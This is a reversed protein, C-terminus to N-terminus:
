GVTSSAVRELKADLEKIANILVPVLSTYSISQGHGMADSEDVYVVENIFGKLEAAVQQMEDDTIDNIDNVYICGAPNGSTTGNSFGDIKKFKFRKM